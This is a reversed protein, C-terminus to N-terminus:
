DFSETDCPQETQSQVPIAIARWDTARGTAQSLLRGGLAQPTLGLSFALILPLGHFPRYRERLLCSDGTNVPKTLHAAM